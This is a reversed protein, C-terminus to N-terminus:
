GGRMEDVRAALGNFLEFVDVAEGREVRKSIMTLPFMIVDTGLLRVAPDRGYEDEVMVWEMGLEQVFVDGLVVGLCQLEYTQEAMFYGQELIMRITGLKGVASEYNRHNEESEGLYREVVARQEGLRREDSGSLGEVRQGSDASMAAGETEGEGCGAMLLGSLLVAVCGATGDSVVSRKRWADGM